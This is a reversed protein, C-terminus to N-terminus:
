VHVDDEVEYMWNDEDLGAAKNRLSQHLLNLIELLCNSKIDNYM